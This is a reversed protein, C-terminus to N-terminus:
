GRMQRFRFDDGILPLHLSDPGLNGIAAGRGAATCKADSWARVRVLRPNGSHPARSTVQNPLTHRRTCANRLQFAVEIGHPVQQMLDYDACEATLM